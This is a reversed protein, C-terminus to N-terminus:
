ADLWPNTAFGPLQQEYHHLTEANPTGGKRRILELGEPGYFDHYTILSAGFDFFRSGLESSRSLVEFMGVQAPSPPEMRAVRCVYDFYGDLSALIRQQYAEGAEDLSCTDALGAHLEAALWEAARFAHTIGIGTCQDVHYGADGVLLWGPGASQRVRNPQDLVGYLRSVQTAAAMREALEPYCRRVSQTFNDALNHRFSDAWARPGWVSIMVQGHNTPCYGLGLRGRLHVGLELGRLDIGSWYGYYTYGCDLSERLVAAGVEQAVRSRRGDGGIVVRARDELSGDNGGRIGIVRGDADRLLGAVKYGERVEVGAERAADLLLKDLVTRRICAWELPGDTLSTDPQWGHDRRWCDQLAARTAHGTIALGQMNFCFPVRFDTAHAELAGRLGWRDLYALARPKVLHSSLTDSPFTAKDVLLVRHGRRALCLATASGAVRAGVIIVDHKM